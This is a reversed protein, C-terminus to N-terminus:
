KSEPAVVRVTVHPTPLFVNFEQDKASAEAAKIRADATAIAAVISEKEGTRAPDDHLKQLQERYAKARELMQPNTKLKVKTEVQWWIAYTGLPTDGATKIEVEGESKDANITVEGCSVKPPFDRPRIVCNQKGGEQRTLVVKLKTSQGRKIEVPNGDGISISVPQIDKDSVSVALSQTLRSRIYNRSHGKGYLITAATAVKRRD